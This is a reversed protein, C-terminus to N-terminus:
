YMTRRKKQNAPAAAPAAATNSNGGFLGLVFDILAKFINGINEGLWKLAADILGANKAWQYLTQVLSWIYSSAQQLLSWFQDPNTKIWNVVWSFVSQIIGSNWVASVINALIEGFNIDDRAMLGAFEDVMEHVERKQNSGGTLMNLVTNIGEKVLNWIASQLGQDTVLKNFINQLLGSNWIASILNPLAGVVSSFISKVLGFVQNKLDDNTTITNWIDGLIGSNSFASILQSLADGLDRQAFEMLESESMGAFDRKAFAAEITTLQDIVGQVHPNAVAEAQAVPIAQGSVATATALALLTANSLKM